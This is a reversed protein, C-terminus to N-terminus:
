YIEIDRRSALKRKHFKVINQAYQECKKESTQMWDAGPPPILEGDPDYVWAYWWGPKTEEIVIRYPKKDM